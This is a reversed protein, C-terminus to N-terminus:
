PGLRPGVLASEAMLWTPTLGLIRTAPKTVAVPPRRRLTTKQASRHRIESCSRSRLSSSSGRTVPCRIASPVVPSLVGLRLSPVLRISSRVM